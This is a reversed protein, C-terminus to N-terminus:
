GVFRFTIRRNGSVIMACEGKRVFKLPHLRMGPIDSQEVSAAHEIRNLIRRIRPAHKAKLGRVAGAPLRKERSPYTVPLHYFRRRPQRAEDRM